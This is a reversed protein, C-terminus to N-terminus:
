TSASSTRGHSRARRKGPFTSGTSAPSPLRARTRPRVSMGHAGTGASEVTFRDGIGRAKLAQRFVGEALPSRCINGLCVFLVSIQGKAGMANVSDDFCV